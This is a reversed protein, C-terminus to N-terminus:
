LSRLVLAHIIAIDDLVGRRRPAASWVAEVPGERLAEGKPAAAADVRPAALAADSSPASVPQSSAAPPAADHEVDENTSTVDQPSAAPATAARANRQRLALLTRVKALGPGDPRQQELQDLLSQATALRGLAIHCRVIVVGAGFHDANLARASAAMELAAKFQSRQTMVEALRARLDASNPRLAVGRQLHAQALMLNSSALAIRVMLMHGRFADPELGLARQCALRAAQRDRALFAARAQLFPAIAETPADGASRAFAAAAEKFRRQRFLALGELEHAEALDPESRLIDQAQRLADDAKGIRLLARAYDLRADTAAPELRAIRRWLVAARAFRGARWEALALLRAALPRDEGGRAALRLFTRAEGPRGVALLARGAQYNLAESEPEKELAVLIRLVAAEDAGPLASESALPRGGPDADALDRGAIAGEETM